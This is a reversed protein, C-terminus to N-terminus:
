LKSPELLDNSEAEEMHLPSFQTGVFHSHSVKFGSLSYLLMILIQIWSEMDLMRKMVNPKLHTPGPFTLLPQAPSMVLSAPPLPYLRPVICGQLSYPM